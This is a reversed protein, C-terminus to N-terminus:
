KSALLQEKHCRSNRRMVNM